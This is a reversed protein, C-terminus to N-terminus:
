SKILNEIILVIATVLGICILCVMTFKMIKSEM